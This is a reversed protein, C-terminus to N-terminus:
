FGTADAGHTAQYIPRLKSRLDQLWDSSPQNRKVDTVKRLGKFSKIEALINRNVSMAPVTSSVTQVPVDCAVSVPVSPVAPMVETSVNWGFLYSIWGSM